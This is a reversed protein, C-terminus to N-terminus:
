DQRHRLLWEAKERHEQARQAEGLRECATALAFHSAPRYPRMTVARQLAPLAKAPQDQRLYAQGLLRWDDASRRVGTLEQLLRIADELNGDELESRAVALQINARLHAAINKAPLLERAIDLARAPDREQYLEVLAATADDHRLGAAHVPELLQLARERFIPAWRAYMEDHSALVYAMGLNRQRDVLPVRSVDDTPILEPARGSAPRPPSPHRGIRHHTFAIHPIDTDGRPMHCVVCNDARDKKLRAAPPLSCGQSSHCNLCKQRYYAVSDKPRERAHPDHCTLCTLEPAKQYCASRRLQEIHGVVTMQENGDDLQYDIRYDTLPQGPRFDNHGRGRLLVSAAGALHCMSCIAELNPRSLKAPNVITLDEEGRTFKGARHLDRHLSGPGHCNECGIVKEHFTVRHVSDGQPEVRGAHCFLCDLPVRREFSFHNPRDYGPSMDWKNKGTYWTIPSEHLYGDFEVLYSRTFSGSGVRYRIPAEVRAIETGESTRLVEEHWLTQDKRYVRYWRGSAEHFYAGDAPEDELDVDGLARSHATHLFSQHQRGHCEACAAVGIYQAEPGSNLFRSQSYPPLPFDPPPSDPESRRWPQLWLLVLALTGCGALGSLWMLKRRSASMM